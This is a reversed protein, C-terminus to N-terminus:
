NGFRPNVINNYISGFTYSIGANGYYSYQTALQRQQTLIEVESAGGKPLAIQDQIFDISGGFNLSLGKVIRWSVNGRISLNRLSTDHLYQSASSSMSISGWKQIFEASLSLRHTFLNEQLKNFITTDVYQVNRYGVTYKLRIQKTTFDAYDFINYEIAPSVGYRFNTNSYTSSNASFEGGVSWHSNIARVASSEWFFNENFNFISTVSDLKYTSESYNYNGWNEFKWKETIRNASISGGLSSSQYAEQGDFWGRGSLRFVWYDWKDVVEETETSDSDNTYDVSIFDVMPTQAVYRMLGLQLFKVQIERREDSTADARAIASISDDQGEFELQGIFNFTYERGGSGTRQSTTLIHVQAAKRDRVYNVYRVNSRFYDMDCFNCDFYVKLADNMPNQTSDQQSFAPLISLIAIAILLLYKM